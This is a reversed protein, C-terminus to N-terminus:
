PQYWPECPYDADPWRWVHRAGTRWGEVFAQWEEEAWWDPRNGLRSPPLAAGVNWGVGRALEARTDPSLRQIRAEDAPFFGSVRSPLEDFGWTGFCRGVVACLPDSEDAGCLREVLESLDGGQCAAPFAAEAVGYLYAQRDLEGLHSAAARGAVIRPFPDLAPDGASVLAFGLGQAVFSRQLPDLGLERAAAVLMRQDAMPDDHLQDAPLRDFWGIGRLHNGRSIADPTDCRAHQGRTPGREASYLHEYRYPALQGLTGGPDSDAVRDLVAFLWGPVLLGAVVVVACVSRWAGSGDRWAIGLQQALLVTWLLLLPIVYRPVHIPPALDMNLLQATGPELGLPSLLYAAAYAAPLSLVLFPHWGVSRWLQRERWLSRAVAALASVFAVLWAVCWLHGLVRQGRHRPVRGDVLSRPQAFCANAATFGFLDAVERVGPGPPEDGSAGEGPSPLSDWLSAAFTASSGGVQSAHEGMQVAVAVFWLPVFVALGIAFDRLSRLGGRAVAMVVTPAAIVVTTLYWTGAALTVGAALARWDCKRGPGSGLALALAALMLATGAAHAGVMALVGDKMLFPGATFLASFAVAGAPGAVRGLISLAAVVLVTAYLMPVWQWALYHDGLVQFGAAALLADTLYGHHKGFNIQQAILEGLHGHAYERGATPVLMFEPDRLHLPHATLRIWLSLLPLSV